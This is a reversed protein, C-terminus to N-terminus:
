FRTGSFDMYGAMLSWINWFTGALRCIQRVWGSGSDSPESETRTRWMSPNPETRTRYLKKVDTRTRNPEEWFTPELETRNGDRGYICQVNNNGPNQLSVLYIRCNRGKSTESRPRQAERHRRWDLRCSQRSFRHGALLQIRSCLTECCSHSCRCGSSASRARSATELADDYQVSVSVESVTRPRRIQASSDM